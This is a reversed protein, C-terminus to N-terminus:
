RSGLHVWLERQEIPLAGPFTVSQQFCCFAVPFLLFVGNRDHKLSTEVIINQWHHNQYVGMGSALGIRVNPIVVAVVGMEILLVLSHLEAASM